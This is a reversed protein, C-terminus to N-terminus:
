LVPGPQQLSAGVMRCDCLCLSTKDYQADSDVETYTFRRLVRMQVQSPNRRDLRSYAPSTRRSATDTM